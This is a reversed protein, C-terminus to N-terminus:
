AAKEKELNKQEEKRREKEGQLDALRAGDVPSPGFSAANSTITEIEEDISSLTRLKLDVSAAEQRNRAEGEALLKEEFNMTVNYLFYLIIALLPPATPSFLVAERIAPGNGSILIIDTL